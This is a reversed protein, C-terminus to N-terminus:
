ALLKIQFSKIIGKLNKSVSPYYNEILASLFQIVPLFVNRRIISKPYILHWKIQSKLYM